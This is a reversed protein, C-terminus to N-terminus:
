KPGGFNGLQTILEYLPHGPKVEGSEVVVHKVLHDSDGNGDVGTAIAYEKTVEILEVERTDVPGRKGSSSVAIFPLNDVNDVRFARGDIKHRGHTLIRDTLIKKLLPPMGDENEGDDYSGEKPELDSGLEDGTKPDLNRYFAVYMGAKLDMPDVFDKHKGM